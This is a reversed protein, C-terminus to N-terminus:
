RRSFMAIIWIIFIIVFLIISLALYLWINDLRFFTPESGWKTDLILNMTEGGDVSWYLQEGDAEKPNTIDAQFTYTRDSVEKLKTSGVKTGNSIYINVNSSDFESYLASLRIQFTAKNEGLNELFMTYTPKKDFWFTTDLPQNTFSGTVDIGNIVDTTALQGYENSGWGYIHDNKWEDKAIVYSYNSGAEVRLDTFGEPIEIETPIVSNEVDEGTGLQGYTNDGWTYLHEDGFSDEVIAISHYYGASYEKVVGHNPFEPEVISVTVDGTIEVGLQGKDNSGWTYLEGEDSLVTSYNYGFNLEKFEIINWFRFEIPEIKFKGTGYDSGLQGGSNSGWLYLEEKKSEEGLIVVGSFYSGAEIKRVDFDLDPYIETPDTVNVTVDSNLQQGLINSGWTYVKDKGTSYDKVWMIAHESGLQVDVIESTTSFVEIPSVLGTSVDENGLQGSENYGWTYLHDANAGDTYVVSAFNGGIRLKSIEGDKFEGSATTALLYPTTMYEPAESNTNYINKGWMYLYDNGVPDDIIAGSTDEGLILEKISGQNTIEVVKDQKEINIKEDKNTPIFLAGGVTFIALPIFGYGLMKNKKKM